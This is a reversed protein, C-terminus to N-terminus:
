NWIGITDHNTYEITVEISGRENGNPYKVSSSLVRVEIGDTISNGATVDNSTIIDAYYYIDYTDLNPLYLVMTERYNKRVDVGFALTKANPIAQIEQSDTVEETVDKVLWYFAKKGGLRGQWNILKCSVGCPIEQVYTRWIDTNTGDGGKVGMTLADGVHVNQLKTDYQMLVPGEVVIGNWIYTGTVGLEINIHALQGQTPAYIAHPPVQYITGTIANNYPIVVRDKNEAGVTTVTIDISESSGSGLYGEFRIFGDNAIVLPLFKTLEIVTDGIPLQYSVGIESTFWVELTCAKTANVNVAIRERSYYVINWKEGDEIGWYTVTMSGDSTINATKKSIRNM